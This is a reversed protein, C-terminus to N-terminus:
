SKLLNNTPLIYHARFGAGLEFDREPIVKAVAEGARAAL